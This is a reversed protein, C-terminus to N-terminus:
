CSGSSRRSARARVPGVVFVFEGKDLVFSAGDLAVVDPEYVKRVDEFVIMAAASASTAGNTSSTDPGELLAAASDPPTILLDDM